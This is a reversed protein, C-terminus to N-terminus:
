KSEIIDSLKGIDSKKIKFTLESSISYIVEGSKSDVVRFCKNACTKPVIYYIGNTSDLIMKDIEAAPVIKYNFKYGSMIEKLDMKEENFHSGMGQQFYVTMYDPVYLTTNKLEKIAKVNEIDKQAIRTENNELYHGILQIYNKFYGPGWNYIYGIFNSTSDKNFNYTVPKEKSDLSIAGINYSKDYMLSLVMNPFIQLPTNANKNGNTIIQGAIDPVISLTLNHHTDHKSLTKYEIFEITNIKWYKRLVDVYPEATKSNLEPIIVFTTDEHINAIKDFFRFTFQAIAQNSIAV